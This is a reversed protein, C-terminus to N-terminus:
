FPPLAASSASSASAPVRGGGGNVFARAKAFDADTPEDLVWAQTRGPQKAGQAVRGVIRKGVKSKNRAVIARGFLLADDYHAGAHAGDLVDVDARLAESPEDSAKTIIGTEHTHIRAVILEGLHDSFKFQDGSSAPVLDDNYDDMATM